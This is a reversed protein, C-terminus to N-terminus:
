CLDMFDELSVSTELLPRIEARPTEASRSQNRQDNSRNRRNKERTKNRKNPQRREEMSGENRLLDTMGYQQLERRMASENTERCSYNEDSQRWREGAKSVNNDNRRSTNLRDWVSNRKTKDYLECFKQWDTDFTPGPTAYSYLDRSTQDFRLRPRVKRFDLESEQRSSNVNFQPISSTSPNFDGHKYDQYFTSSTSPFRENDVYYNHSKSMYSPRSNYAYTSQPPSKYDQSRSQYQRNNETSMFETQVNQKMNANHNQGEMQLLNTYYQKKIDLLQQKADAITNPQSENRQEGWPKKEDCKSSANDSQSELLKAYFQKKANLLQQKAEVITRPKNSSEEVMQQQSNKSKNKKRKKSKTGGKNHISIVNGKMRDTETVVPTFFQMKSKTGEKNHISIVNGKMRDTETVVPTFFQLTGDLADGLQLNVSEIVDKPFLYESIVSGNLLQEHYGTRQAPFVSLRLKTRQKAAESAAFGAVSKALLNGFHALSACYNREKSDTIHEELLHGMTRIVDYLILSTSLHGRYTADNAVDDAKLQANSRSNPINEKITRNLERKSFFPESEPFHPNHVTVKDIDVPIKPSLHYKIFKNVVKSAEDSCQFHYNSLTGNKPPKDIEPMFRKMIEISKSFHKEFIFKRELYEIERKNTNNQVAGVSEEFQSSLQKEQNDYGNSASMKMKNVQFGIQLFFTITLYRIIKHVTYIINKVFTAM